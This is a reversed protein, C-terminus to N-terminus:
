GERGTGDQSAVLRSIQGTEILGAVAERISKLNIEKVVILNEEFFFGGGELYSEIDQALRVPNWFNLLYTQGMHFLEAGFYYGKSDWPEDDFYPLRLETQM